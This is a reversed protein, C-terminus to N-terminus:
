DHEMSTMLEHTDAPPRTWLSVVVTALLSVLFAVSACVAFMIGAFPMEGLMLSYGYYGSLFM